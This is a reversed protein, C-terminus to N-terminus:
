LAKRSIDPDVRPKLFGYKETDNAGIIAEDLFDVLQEAIHQILPKGNVPLLRKGM